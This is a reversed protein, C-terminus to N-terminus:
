KTKQQTSLLKAILTSTFAKTLSAVCYLTSRTAPRGEEVDALGYGKTIVTKGGRVIALSLSPIGKCEILGSIFSDIKRLDDDTIQKSHIHPALSFFITASFAVALQARIDMKMRTIM